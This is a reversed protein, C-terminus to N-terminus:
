DSNEFEALGELFHATKRVTDPTAKKGADFLMKMEPRERFTQRVENMDEVDHDHEGILESVSLGFYEAALRVKAISPSSQDWRGATNIGVGSEREFESFSIGRQKCLQKLRDVLM